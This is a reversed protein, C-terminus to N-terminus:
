GASCTGGVFEVLWVGDPIGRRLDSATRLALRTKGVGGPGVLTVLRAATLASKVEQIQHRRGIFSTLEAPLNGRTATARGM